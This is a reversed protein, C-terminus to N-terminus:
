AQPFFAAGGGDNKWNAGKLPGSPFAVPNPGEDWLRKRGIGNM